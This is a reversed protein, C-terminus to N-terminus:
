GVDVAVRGQEFLEVVGALEFAVAADALEAGEAAAGAGAGEAGGAVRQGRVREAGEDRGDGRSRLLVLRDVLHNVPQRPELLSSLHNNTEPVLPQFVEAQGTSGAADASARNTPTDTDQLQQLKRLGWLIQLNGPHNEM